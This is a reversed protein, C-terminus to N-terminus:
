VPSTIAKNLLKAYFNFSVKLEYRKKYEEETDKKVCMGNQFYAMSAKHFAFIDDKGILVRQYCTLM